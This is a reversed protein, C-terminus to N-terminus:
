HWQRLGEMWHEQGDEGGTLASCERMDPRDSTLSSSEVLRSVTARGLHFAAVAPIPEPRSAALDFLAAASREDSPLAGDLVVPQYVVRGRGLHRIAIVLRAARDSGFCELEGTDPWRCRHRRGPHALFWRGDLRAIEQLPRAMASTAEGPPFLTALTLSGAGCLIHSFLGQIAYSFMCISALTIFGLTKLSYQRFYDAIQGRGPEAATPRRDSDFRGHV